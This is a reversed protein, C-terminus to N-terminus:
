SQYELSGQFVDGALPLYGGSIEKSTTLIIQNNSSHYARRRAKQMKFYIKNERKAPQRFSPEPFELLRPRKLLLTHGLM